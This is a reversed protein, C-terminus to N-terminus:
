RTKRKPKRFLWVLGGAGVILAGSLLPRVAFWAVAITVLSLSIALVGSALTAAGM